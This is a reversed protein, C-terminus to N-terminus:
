VDITKNYAVAFGVAGSRGLPDLSVPGWVGFDFSANDYRYYRDDSIRTGNPYYFYGNALFEASPGFAVHNVSHQFKFYYTGNLHFAHVGTRNATGVFIIDPIVHVYSPVLSRGNESVNFTFISTNRNPFDDWAPIVSIQNDHAAYLVGYKYDIDRASFPPNYVGNEEEALFHITGDRALAVLDAHQGAVKIQSFIVGLGAIFLRATKTTRALGVISVTLWM